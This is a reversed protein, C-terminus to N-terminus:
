ASSKPQALSADKSPENHKGQAGRTNLTALGMLVMSVAGYANARVHGMGPNNFIM